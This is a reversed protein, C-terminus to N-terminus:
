FLDEIDIFIWQESDKNRRKLKMEIIPRALEESQRKHAGGLIRHRKIERIIQFEIGKMEFEVIRRDGIEIEDRGTDYYLPTQDDKLVKGGSLVIRELLQNFRDDAASESTLDIERNKGDQDGM